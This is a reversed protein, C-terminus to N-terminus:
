FLTCYCGSEGSLFVSLSSDERERKKEWSDGGKEKGGAFPATFSNRSVQMWAFEREGGTVKKKFFSSRVVSRALVSNEWTLDLAVVCLCCRRGSKFRREKSPGHQAACFFSLFFVSYVVFRSEEGRIFRGVTRWKQESRPPKKVSISVAFFPENCEEGEWAEM